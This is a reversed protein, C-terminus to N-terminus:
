TFVKRFILSIKKSKTNLSYKIKKRNEYNKEMLITLFFFSKRFSLYKKSYPLEGCFFSVKYIKNKLFIKKLFILYNKLNVVNYSVINKKINKLRADPHRISLNMKGIENKGFHVRPSDIFIYNSSIRILESIVKKYNQVHHLVSTSFALNVSKNKLNIKYGKQLFFKTNKNKKWKKKALFIFNKESDLGIYKINKNFMSKFINYFNGAACGYDLIIDIEKKKIKKLIVKESNFVDQIKTRSQNFYKIVNEKGWVTM